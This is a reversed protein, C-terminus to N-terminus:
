QVSKWYDLSSFGRDLQWRVFAEAARSLRRESEEPIVFSFERKAPASVIHRVAALSEGDLPLAAGCARCHVLGMEPSFMPEAPDTRGCVGCAAVEPEFGALCMLRLEFVSKVHEPGYIGRSLAYLANLALRLAPGEPAEEACVTDLLEAFYTGLALQAIDERLGLFQELASAEDATWRGRSGFLTFESWCLAQSAAGLRSNRRLAGRARITLKGREETLVTLLLDAEKYRVGRLVLGRTTAYM